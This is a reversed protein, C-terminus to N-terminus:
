AIENSEKTDPNKGMVDSNLLDWGKEATTMYKRLGNVENQLKQLTDSDAQRKLVFDAEKKLLESKKEALNKEAQERKTEAEAL